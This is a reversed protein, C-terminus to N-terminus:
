YNYKIIIILYLTTHTDEGNNWDKLVKSIGYSLRRTLRRAKSGFGVNHNMICVNFCNVEFCFLRLHDDQHVDKYLVLSGFFLRFYHLIHYIVILRYENANEREREM